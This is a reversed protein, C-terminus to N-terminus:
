ISTHPWSWARALEDPLQYGILQLSPPGLALRSPHKPSAFFGKDRGPISGHNVIVLYSFIWIHLLVPFTNTHVEQLKLYKMQVVAISCVVYMSLATSLYHEKEGGPLSLEETPAAM